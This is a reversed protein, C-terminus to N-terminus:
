RCTFDDRSAHNVYNRTFHDYHEPDAAADDDHRHATWTDVTFYTSSAHYRNDASRSVDGAYDHASANDTDYRTHDRHHYVLYHYASSADDNHRHATWTDFTTHATSAHDGTHASRAFTGVHDTWTDFTSHASSAYHGIHTSRAFTRAHDNCYNSTQRFHHDHDASEYAHTRSTLHDHTRRTDAAVHATRAHHNHRGTARPIADAYVADADWGSRFRVRRPRTFHVPNGAAVADDASDASTGAVNRASAHPEPVAAHPSVFDLNDPVSDRDPLPASHPISLSNDAPGPHAGTRPDNVASADTVAASEDALSVGAVGHDPLRDDTVTHVRDADGPPSEAGGM